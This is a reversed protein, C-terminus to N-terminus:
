QRCGHALAKMQHLLFKRLPGFDSGKQAATRPASKEALIGLGVQKVLLHQAGASAQNSNRVPAGFRATRLFDGVRCVQEEASLAGIRVPVANETAKISRMQAGLKPSIQDTCLSGGVPERRAALDTPHFQEIVVGVAFVFQEEGPRFILREYFRGIA